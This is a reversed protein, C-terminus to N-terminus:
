YKVGGSGNFLLNQFQTVIRNKYHGFSLNLFPIEVLIWDHDCKIMKNISKQKPIMNYTGLIM